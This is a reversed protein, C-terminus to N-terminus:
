QILMSNIEKFYDLEFRIAIPHFLVAQHILGIQGVTRKRDFTSKLTRGIEDRYSSQIGLIKRSRSLTSIDNKPEIVLPDLKQDLLTHSPSHTVHLMHM